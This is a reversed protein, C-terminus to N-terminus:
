ESITAQGNMLLPLLFDRAKILLLNENRISGLKQFIDKTQENFTTCIKPSPIVLKISSIADLSMFEQISQGKVSKFKAQMLPSKLLCLAYFGNYPSHFRLLASNCHIALPIDSDCLFNVNGITGIKTIVIDGVEPEYTSHIVKYDFDSIYTAKSYDLFIQGFMTGTLLPIGDITRKPPNHTGDKLLSLISTISSVEWGVPIERKLQENYVM